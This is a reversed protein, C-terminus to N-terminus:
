QQQKKWNLVFISLQHMSVLTLLRESNMVKHKLEDMAFFVTLYESLSQAIHTHTHTHYRLVQHILAM